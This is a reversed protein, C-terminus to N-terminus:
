ASEKTMTDHKKEEAPAPPEGLKNEQYAKAPDAKLAEDRPMAGSDQALLTISQFAAAIAVARRSDGTSRQGRSKM